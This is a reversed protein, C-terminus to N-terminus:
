YKTADRAAQGASSAPDSGQVISIEHRSKSAAM